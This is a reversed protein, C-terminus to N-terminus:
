NGPTREKGSGSNSREQKEKEDRLKSLLELEKELIKMVSWDAPKGEEASLRYNTVPKNLADPSPDDTEETLYAVTSGLVKAAKLLDGVKPDVTGMEWNYITTGTSGVEMGFKERSGFKERLSRFRERNFAM